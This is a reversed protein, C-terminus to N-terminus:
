PSTLKKIIAEAAALKEMLAKKTAYAARNSAKKAEKNRQYREKDRQREAMMRDYAIQLVEPSPQPHEM